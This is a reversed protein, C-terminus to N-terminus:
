ASQSAWPKSRGFTMTAYGDRRAPYAMPALISTARACSAAHHSVARVVRCEPLQEADGLRREVGGTGHRECAAVHARHALRREAGPPRHRREGAVAHAEPERAHVERRAREPVWKRLGDTGIRAVPAEAVGGPGVVDEVATA